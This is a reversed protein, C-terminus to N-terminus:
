AGAKASVPMRKIEVHVCRERDVPLGGSHIGSKQVAKDLADLSPALVAFETGDDTKFLAAYGEYRKSGPYLRPENFQNVPFEWPGTTCTDM